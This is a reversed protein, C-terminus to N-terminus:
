RAKERNHILDGDNNNNHGFPPDTFIMDISKSALHPLIECCNGLFIAINDHLYYPKIKSPLFKELSSSETSVNPLQM